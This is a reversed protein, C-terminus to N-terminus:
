TGFSALCVYATAAKARCPEASSLTTKGKAYGESLYLNDSRLNLRDSDRYRVCNRAGAGLILRAVTVLEGCVGHHYTRVYHYGRTAENFTWAMGLGDATLRDFDEPFLKAPQPHNALPVLVITSGDRDQTRVPSRNNKTIM